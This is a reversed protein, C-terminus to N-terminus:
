QLVTQEHEPDGIFVPSIIKRRPWKKGPWVEFMQGPEFLNRDIVMAFPATNLFPHDTHRFGPGSINM